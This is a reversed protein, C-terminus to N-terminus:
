PILIIIAKDPDGNAQVLAKKCEMMGAGTRDRLAKVQKAGVTM